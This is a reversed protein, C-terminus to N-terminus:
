DEMAGSTQSCACSQCKVSVIWGGRTVANARRHGSTRYLAWEFEMASQVGRQTRNQVNPSVCGLGTSVGCAVFRMDRLSGEQTVMSIIREVESYIKNGNATRYYGGVKSQPTERLPVHSCWATPMVSACAGPDIIIPFQLIELPQGTANCVVDASDGEGREGSDPRMREPRQMPIMCGVMPEEAEDGSSTASWGNAKHAQGESTWVREKMGRQPTLCDAHSRDVCESRTDAEHNNLQM